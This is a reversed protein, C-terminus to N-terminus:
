LLDTQSIRLQERSENGNNLKRHNAMKSLEDKFDYPDISKLQGNSIGQRLSKLKLFPELRHRQQGFNHKQFPSM